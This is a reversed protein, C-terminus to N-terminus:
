RSGAHLVCRVLWRCSRYTHRIRRFCSTRGVGYDFAMRIFLALVQLTPFVVPEGEELFSALPNGASEEHWGLSTMQILHDNRAVILRLVATNKYKM